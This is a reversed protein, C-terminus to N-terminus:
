GHNNEKKNEILPCWKPIKIPRDNVGRSKNRDIKAIKRCNSKNCVYYTTERLFGNHDSHPCENCNKIKITIDM